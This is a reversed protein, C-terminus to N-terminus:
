LMKFYRLSISTSRLLTKIIVSFKLMLFLLQLRVYGWQTRVLYKSLKFLELETILKMNRWTLELSILVWKIKSYRQWEKSWAKKVILMVM